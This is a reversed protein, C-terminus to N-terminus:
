ILGEKLYLKIEQIAIDIEPYTFDMNKYIYKKLINIYNTKEKAPYFYEKNNVVVKKYTKNKKVKLIDLLDPQLCFNLIENAKNSMKENEKYIFINKPLLTIGILIEKEKKKKEKLCFQFFHNKLNNYFYTSFKIKHNIEKQIKKKPTIGFYYRNYVEIFFENAESYLDEYDMKFYLSYIRTLKKITPISAKYCIEMQQKKLKIKENKEKKIINLLHLNSKECM